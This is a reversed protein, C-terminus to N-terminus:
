VIETAGVLVVEAEFSWNRGEFAPCNLLSTNCM